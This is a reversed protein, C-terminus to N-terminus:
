QASTAVKNKARTDAAATRSQEAKLRNQRLSAALKRWDGLSQVHPPDSRRM